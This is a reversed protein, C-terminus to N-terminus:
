IPTSSRPPPPEAPKPAPPQASGLKQNVMDLGKRARENNPNIALVNELCIQQEEDSDVVASLWLWAQESREDQDVAQMFINKAEEKRGAKFATMGQKILSDVESM